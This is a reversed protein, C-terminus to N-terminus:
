CSRRLARRIRHLISDQHALARWGPLKEPLGYDEFSGGYIRKGHEMESLMARVARKQLPSLDKSTLPPKNHPRRPFPPFLLDLVTWVAGRTSNGTEIATIATSAAEQRSAADLCAYLIDRNLEISVAWPLPDFSDEVDDAAIAELIAARAREPLPNRKLYSSAFAAGRRQALDDGSLAGDLLSLTADSRDGALGLLLLLGTRQLSGTENDMMSRLRASVVERHEPLLALVHAAALRVDPKDEETMALLEAVGRAVAAHAEEVWKLEEAMRETFDPANMMNGHVDLYSSGAAIDALLM